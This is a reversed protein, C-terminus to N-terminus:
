ITQLYRSTTYESYGFDTSNYVITDMIIQQWM